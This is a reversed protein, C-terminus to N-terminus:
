VGTKVNSSKQIPNSPAPDVSTGDDEVSTSPDSAEVSEISLPQVEVGHIM